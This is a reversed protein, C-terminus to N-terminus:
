FSERTWKFREFIMSISQSKRVAFDVKTRSETGETSWPFGDNTRSGRKGIWSSVKISTGLCPPKMMTISRSLSLGRLMGHLAEWGKLGTETRGPRSCASQLPITVSGQAGSSIQRGAGPQSIVARDSVSTVRWAGSFPIGPSTLVM